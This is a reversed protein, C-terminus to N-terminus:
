HVTQQGQKEWALGESGRGEWLRFDLDQREWGSEGVKKGDDTIRPEVRGSLLRVPSPLCGSEQERMWETVM